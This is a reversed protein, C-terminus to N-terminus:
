ERLKLDFCACGRWILPRLRQGSWDSGLLMNAICSILNQYILNSWVSDSVAHGVYFKEYWCGSISIHSMDDLYCIRIQGIGLDLGEHDGDLGGRTGRRKM